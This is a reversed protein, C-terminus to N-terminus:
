GIIISAVTYTFDTAATPEAAPTDGSMMLYAALGGVLLLVVIVVGIVVWLLTNSKKAPKAGGAKMQNALAFAQQLDASEWGVKQMAETIEQDTFGMQRCRAIYQPGTEQPM